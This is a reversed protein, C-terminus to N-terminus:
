HARVPGALVVRGSSTQDNDTAEVTITMTPFQAPSVGSWLEVRDNSSSFTGTRVSPGDANKLWAQYPVGPARPPGSPPRATRGHSPREAHSGTSTPARPM